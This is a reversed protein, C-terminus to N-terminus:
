FMILNECHQVIEGFCIGSSGGVATKHAMMMEGLVVRNYNQYLKTIVM